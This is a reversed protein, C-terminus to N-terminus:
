MYHLHLELFTLTQRQGWWTDSSTSGPACTLHRFVGFLVDQGPTSISTFNSPFNPGESVNKCQQACEWLCILMSPILLGIHCQVFTESAHIYIHMSWWWHYIYAQDLWYFSQCHWNPWFGWTTAENQSYLWKWAKIVMKNKALLFLMSNQLAGSCYFSM